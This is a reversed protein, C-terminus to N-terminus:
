CDPYHDKGATAFAARKAIKLTKKIEVQKGASEIREVVDRSIRRETRIKMAPINGANVERNITDYSVNWRDAVQQITMWDSQQKTESM